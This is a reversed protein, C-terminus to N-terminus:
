DEYNEYPLTRSLVFIALTAAALSGVIVGLRVLTLHQPSSYALSGIFLSMTFGIGSLATVGLLQGWTVGSPLSVWGRRVMFWLSGLCGLPKGVFLGLLAGLAIGESLTGWTVGEFNVGANFFAFVPLVFYAIWPHLDHELSELPYPDGDIPIFLAIIVGALTAHLGSKLIMLWLIAGVLLYPSLSRVGLRNLIALLATCVLSAFLAPLLIDGTYFLAIILIAAVDDVIALATLLVKLAVPVRRGFLSLVALAFAIDTAAPIAWGRLGSTDSSFSNVLVYLLAPMIIGGLAASFPLIRQEHTALEGKLCERKLELGVLLFFVTMLGDNVWLLLPKALKFEGVIVALPVNRLTEYWDGFGLNVMLLAVLASAFLLVGGFSELQIFKKFAGTM